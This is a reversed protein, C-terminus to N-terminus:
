TIMFQCIKCSKMPKNRFHLFFYFNIRAKTHGLRYMEPDLGTTELCAGSAKKVDKESQMIAPALIQYSFVYHNTLYPNVFYFECDFFLLTAILPLLLSQNWQIM